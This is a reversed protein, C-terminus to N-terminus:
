GGFEAYVAAFIADASQVAALLEATKATLEGACESDAMAHTNALVNLAAAEAAARCCVAACGADSLALRPCLEAAEKILPCLLAYLELMRLPPEAANRLALEKAEIDKSRYANSLPLFAEADRDILALLEERMSDLRSILERLRTEHEAYKPKGAALSLSMQALAAAIAGVAAAAGGGGPTPASSALAQTFKDLRENKM